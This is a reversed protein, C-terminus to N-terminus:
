SAHEGELFVGEAGLYLYSQGMVLDEWSSSLNMWAEM